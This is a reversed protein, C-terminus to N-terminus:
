FYSANPERATNLHKLGRIDTPVLCSLGESSIRHALIEVYLFLMSMFNQQSTEIVAGFGGNHEIRLALEWETIARSIYGSPVNVQDRASSM